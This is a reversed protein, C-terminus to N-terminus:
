LPLGWLVSFVTGLVIALGYCLKTEKEGRSPSLSGGKLKFFFLSLVKEHRGASEKFGRDAVLFLLAFLGGILASFLFTLFAGHPGLLGGIAGMFKTDGAGMAGMLYPIILVGMGLSVGGLSFLIGDAGKLATHYIIAIFMTPYTLWNPIKHFRVDNIAGTLLVGSLFLFFPLQVFDMCIKKGTFKLKGVKRRTVAGNNKEIDKGIRVSQCFHNQLDQM